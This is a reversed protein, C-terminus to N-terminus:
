TALATGTNEPPLAVFSARIDIRLEARVEVLPREFWEAWPAGFLSKARKGMLWGRVIERSRIDWDSLNYFATNLFGAALLIPAIPNPYQALYFAQLGLEGAVDTEFGTVVHWLDHSEYLHALVYKAPSEGPLSPIDEPKLNRTRLYEGYAHGLSEDPYILLTGVDIKGLRTRKEIATKGQPDSSFRVALRELNEERAVRGAMAFVEDLRNPDRVIRAFAALARMLTFPNKIKPAQIETANMNM